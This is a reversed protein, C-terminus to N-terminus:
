GAVFHALSQVVRRGKPSLYALRERADFNGVRVEILGLGPRGNVGKDSLKDFIRQSQSKSAGILTSVRLQTIGEQRAIVLLAAAQNAPLEPDHKRLEEIILLLRDVPIM